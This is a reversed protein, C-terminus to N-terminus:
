SFIDRFLPQAATCRYDGFVTWGCRHVEERYVKFWWFCVWVTYPLALFAWFVNLSFISVFTVISLVVSLTHVASLNTCMDGKMFYLAWWQNSFVVTLLIFSLQEANVSWDGNNHILYAGASLMGGVFLYCGLWVLLPVGFPYGHAAVHATALTGAKKAQTYELREREYVRTWGEDRAPMDEKVEEEESDKQHATYGVFPSASLMFLQWFPAGEIIVLWVIIQWVNELM